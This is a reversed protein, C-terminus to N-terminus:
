LNVFVLASLEVLLWPQTVTAVFVESIDDPLGLQGISLHYPGFQSFSGTSAARASSPCIGQAARMNYVRRNKCVSSASFFEFNALFSVTTGLVGDVEGPAITALIALLINALQFGLLGISSYIFVSVVRFSLIGDFYILVKTALVVTETVEPEDNNFFDLILLRHGFFLDSM